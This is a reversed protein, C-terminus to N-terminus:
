LVLAFIATAPSKTVLLAIIPALVTAVLHALILEAPRVPVDAARLRREVSGLAGRRNALNATVEVARRLTSSAAMVEDLRRTRRDGRNRVVVEPKSALAKSRDRGLQLLTGTLVGVGAVVGVVPLIVLPDSFASM